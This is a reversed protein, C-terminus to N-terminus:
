ERSSCEPKTQSTLTLSDMDIAYSFGIICTLDKNTYSTDHYRNATTIIDTVHSYKYGTIDFYIIQQHNKDYVKNTLDYVEIKNTINVNYIDGSWMENGSSVNDKIFILFDGNPRNYIEMKLPWMCYAKDQWDCWHQYIEITSTGINKNDYYKTLIYDELVEDYTGSKSSKNDILYEETYKVNNFIYKLNSIKVQILDYMQSKAFNEDELNNNIGLQKLYNDIIKTDLNNSSFTQKNINSQNIDINNSNKSNNYNIKELIFITMLIFFLGTIFGLDDGKIKNM